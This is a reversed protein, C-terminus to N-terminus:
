QKPLLTVQQRALEVGVTFVAAFRKGRMDDFELEHRGAAFGRVLPGHVQLALQLPEGGNSRVSLMGVDVETGDVAFRLTVPAAREAIVTLPATADVKVQASTVVPAITEGWVLVGYDGAPLRLALPEQDPPTSFPGGVPLRIALTADAVASGDALTARAELRGTGLVLRGLDVIGIAPVMIGDRLLLPQSGGRRAVVMLAYNGPVLQTAAFAGTTADITLKRPRVPVMPDAGRQVLMAELEALKTDVPPVVIGRLEAQGMKSPDVAVTVSTDRAVDREALPPSSADPRVSVRGNPEPVDPFHVRGDADTQANRGSGGGVWGVQWGALPKGALDVVRVELGPGAGFVHVFREHAGAALELNRELLGDHTVQLRYRGALLDRATGAGRDDLPLFVTGLRAFEDDLDPHQLWLTVYTGALSSGDAASLQVDLTAGTGFCVEVSTETGAVAVTEQQALRSSGDDLLHAAVVLCHGAPVDTCTFRGSADTWVLIPAADGRSRPLSQLGVACKALPRATADLVTGRVVAPTSGLHLTASTRNPRLETAASAAFGEHRARLRIVRDVAAVRCRGDRDTRGFERAALGHSDRSTSGVLRADPVPRGADDVVRLEATFTIPLELKLETVGSGRVEVSGHVDTGGFTVAAFGVPLSFMAAGDADTKSRLVREDVATTSVAQNGKTKGPDRKLGGRVQLWAGDIAAGDGARHLRVRLLGEQGSATPGPAAAREVPPVAPAAANAMAGEDQTPEAVAVALPPTVAATGATAADPWAWWALLVAVASSSVAFVMKNMVLVGIVFSGVHGSGAAVAAGGPVEGLVRQRMAALASAQLSLAVGGAAVLGPPLKSRLQDLGRHLRMRVTGAPLDQERAIEHAALGHVLHQELTSRYPEELRALAQQVTSAIERDAAVAVPDREGPRELRAADPTRAARRRQERVRNALMGLLWPVLPRTAEWDHPAEIASLFTAQVADEALHRDRCLHAAVRWLDPAVADFVRALLRADGTRRFDDFWRDPRSRIV